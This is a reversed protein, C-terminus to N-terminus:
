QNHAVATDVQSLIYAILLLMGGFPLSKAV